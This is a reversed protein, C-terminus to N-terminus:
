IGYMKRGAKLYKCVISKANRSKYDLELIKALHKYPAGLKHIKVAHKIRMIREIAQKLKAQLREGGSNSLNGYVVKSAEHWSSGSLILEVAHRLPPPLHPILSNLEALQEARGQDELLSHWATQDEGYNQMM